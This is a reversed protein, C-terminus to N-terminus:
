QRCNSLINDYVKKTNEATIRWSFSNLRQFGKAILKERLCNNTLIIEISQILSEPDTPNFYYAADSGIESLSSSNSLIAPCGCSFAELIPLGFGEYLSPFIFAQANEYLIKLIFDNTKVVKVKSVIDLRNLINLETQSFRGGGACYLYLNKDKKLLKAVSNIFFIFNKYGYRSGVYLLYPKDLLSYDFNNNIMDQYRIYDFPNGLYIVTVRNPDINFFKIIDKKTNESIAIIAEAREILEKKWVKTQDSASFHDPYMEHIMDYVTLVFPKNGLYKLFYPDYYTPHFIDFNNEKILRISEKQNINYPNLFNYNFYKTNLRSIARSFFSSKNSWYQNLPERSILNENDSLTLALTFLLDPMSTFCDM